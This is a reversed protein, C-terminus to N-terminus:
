GIPATSDQITLDLLKAEARDMFARAEALTPPKQSDAAHCTWFTFALVIVFSRVIIIASPFAIGRTRMLRFAARLLAHAVDLCSGEFDHINARQMREERRLFTEIETTPSFQAM